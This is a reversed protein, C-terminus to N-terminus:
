VDLGFFERFEPKEFPADMDEDLYDEFYTDFSIDAAHTYEFSQDPLQIFGIEEKNKEFYLEIMTMYFDEEEMSDDEM